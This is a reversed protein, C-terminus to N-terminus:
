NLLENKITDFNKYKKYIVKSLILPYINKKEFYLSYKRSLKPFSDTKVYKLFEISSSLIEYPTNEKVQIKKENNYEGTSIKGDLREDLNLIKDNKFYMKPLIINKKSGLVSYLPAWNTLLTPKDFLYNITSPGSGTCISFYCNEFIFPIYQKYNQKTLDIFKTHNFKIDPMGSDGIRLIFFGKKILFKISPIYNDINANRLNEKDREVYRVHLVIYKTNSSLINIGYSKLFRIGDIKKEYNIKILPGFNKKEWNEQISKYFKEFYILKKNDFYGSLSASNILIDLEDYQSDTNFELYDSYCNLLESNDYESLPGLIILKNYGYIKLFNSKIFVGILAIHGIAKFDVAKFFLRDPYKFIIKTTAKVNHSLDYFRNALSHSGILNLTSAIAELSIIFKISFIININKKLLFSHEIDIQPFYKIIKAYLNKLNKEKTIISLKRILIAVYILYEKSFFILYKNPFSYRYFRNFYIIFFDSNFKYIKIKFILKIIIYILILYLKFLFKQLQIFLFNKKFLFIFKM